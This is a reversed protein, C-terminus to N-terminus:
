ESRDIVDGEPKVDTKRRGGSAGKGPIRPSDPIRNWPYAEELREASCNVSNQRGPRAAITQDRATMPLAFIATPATKTHVAQVACQARAGREIIAALTALAFPATLWM